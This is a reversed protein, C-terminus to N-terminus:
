LAILLSAGCGLVLNAIKPLKDNVVRTLRQLNQRVDKNVNTKNKTRQPKDVKILNGNYKYMLFLSM